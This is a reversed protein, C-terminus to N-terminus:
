LEKGSSPSVKWWPHVAGEVREDTCSIHWAEPMDGGTDFERLLIGHSDPVERVSFIQVESFVVMM